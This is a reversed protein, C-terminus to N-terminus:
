KLFSENSVFSPSYNYDEFTLQRENQGDADIIFIHQNTKKDGREFVIKRGDPSWRPRIDMLPNNTLRKIERENEANMIYIEPNGDKEGYFLIQKEDPSLQPYYKDGAGTTVAAKESGDPNMKMIQYVGDKKSSYYIKNDSGWFPMTDTESNRTLNELDGGDSNMVYIESNGDRDSVFVIREADPSWFPAYEAQGADTLQLFSKKEADMLWIKWWGVRESTFVMKRGDKSLIASSDKSPHDTIQITKGEKSILYINDTRDRQKTFLISYGSPEPKKPAPEIDTKRGSAPQGCATVTLLLYVLGATLVREATKM